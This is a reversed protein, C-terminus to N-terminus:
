DPAGPVAKAERPAALRRLLDALSPCGTKAFIGHLHSRITSESLGLDRAAADIQGHRDLTMCVRFEARSLRAPNEM